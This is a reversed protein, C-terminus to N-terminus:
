VVIERAFDLCQLLSVVLLEGGDKIGDLPQNGLVVITFGSGLAANTKKGSRKYARRRSKPREEDKMRGSEDKGKCEGGVVKTM